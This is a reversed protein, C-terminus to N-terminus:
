FLADFHIFQEFPVTILFGIFIVLMIKSWVSIKKVQTFKVDHFSVENTEIQLLELSESSTQRKTILNYYWLLINIILLSGISFMLLDFSSMNHGFFPFPSFSNLIIM